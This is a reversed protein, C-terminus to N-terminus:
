DSVVDMVKTYQNAYDYTTSQKSNITLRFIVITKIINSRIDKYTTQCLNQIFQTNNSIKYNTCFFIILYIFRITKRYIYFLKIVM